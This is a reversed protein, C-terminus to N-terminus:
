FGLSRLTFAGTALGAGTLGDSPTVRVVLPDDLGIAPTESQAAWLFRHPFGQPVSQYDFVRTALGRTGSGGIPIATVASFSGGDVAYEVAVDTPSEELDFLVFSIQVSADVRIAAGISLVQPATNERGTSCAPVAVVGLAGISASGLTAAAFFRRVGIRM